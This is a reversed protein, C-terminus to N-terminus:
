EQVGMPPQKPKSWVEWTVGTKLFCQMPSISNWSKPLDKDSIHRKNELNVSPFNNASMTENLHRYVDNKTPNIGAATLESKALDFLTGSRCLVADAPAIQKQNRDAVKVWSDSHLADALRQAPASLHESNPVSERQVKDGAM